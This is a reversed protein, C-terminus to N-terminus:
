SLQQLFTEIDFKESSLVANGKTVVLKRAPAEKQLSEVNMFNMSLCGKNIVTMALIM